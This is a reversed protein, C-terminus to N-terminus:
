DSTREFRRVAILSSRTVAFACLIGLLTAAVVDSLYHQAIYVRSFAILLPIPLFILGLRWNTFLLVGIFAMSAATHGSPFANFRAHLNPGSWIVRASSPRARGVAVKVVRAAAGALMLAVLMALFVRVWKEAGRRWAIGALLVGLALHAPWDGIRGVLRMFAAVSRNRHHEMFIRISEDAWFACALLVSAIVLALFLARMGIKRDV